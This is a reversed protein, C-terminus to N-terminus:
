IGDEVRNPWPVLVIGDGFPPTKEAPYPETLDVGDIQFTRLSAAVETIIATSSGAATSRTLVFQEGTPARM